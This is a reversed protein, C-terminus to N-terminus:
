KLELPQSFSAVLVLCPSSFFSLCYNLSLICTGPQQFVLLPGCASEGLGELRLDLLLGLPTAGREMLNGEGIHCYDGQESPAM